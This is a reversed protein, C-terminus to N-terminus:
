SGNLAELDASSNMDLRDILPQLIAATATVAGNEDQRVIARLLDRHLSLDPVPLHESVIVEEMHKGISASFYRYLEELARNHTATAIAMHFAEDRATFSEISQGDDLSGRAELLVTLRALDQDDRKRAALRACDAELLYRLELHDRLAAENIRQMTEMPDDNRRLYTGDGQRVNLVGSQSLSRIAERVTNRGIQLQKALDAERPIREGVTWRGDAIFQRLVGITSEVLSQRPASPLLAISSPSRSSM